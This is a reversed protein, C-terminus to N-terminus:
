AHAYGGKSHSEVWEVLKLENLLVKRGVRILAIALGNGKIIGISSRRDNAKFILNRIASETPFLAPYAEVAQKITLYNPRNELPTQKYDPM